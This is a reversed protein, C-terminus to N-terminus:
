HDFPWKVGTTREFNSVANKLNSRSKFTKPDNLGFNRYAEVYSKERKMAGVFSRVEAPTGTIKVPVAFSDGLLMGLIRKVWTQLFLGLAEDMKRMKNFNIEIPVLDKDQM